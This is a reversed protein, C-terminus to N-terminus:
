SPVSPVSAALLRTGRALALATGLCLTMLGATGIFLVAAEATSYVWGAALGVAGATALGSAGLRGEGAAPQHREPSLAACVQNAPMTFSDALAHVLSIVLLLWVFDVLGYSATCVAAVGVSLGIVRLPGRQAAQKGGIPALFIMPVTFLSL